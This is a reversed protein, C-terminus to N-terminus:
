NAFTSMGITIGTSDGRVTTRDGRSTGGFWSSQFDPPPVDRDAAMLFLEGSFLDAPDGAQPSTASRSGCALSTRSASAPWRGYAAEVGVVIRDGTRRFFARCRSRGGRPRLERVHATGQVNSTHPFGLQDGLERLKALANAMARYESTPLRSWEEQAEPHPLLEM